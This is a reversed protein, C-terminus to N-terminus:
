PVNARFYVVSLPISPARAKLSQDSDITRSGQMADTALLAPKAKQWSSRLTSTPIVFNGSSALLM